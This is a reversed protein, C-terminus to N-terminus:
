ADGGGEGLLISLADADDLEDDDQVIEWTQVWASNTEKWFFAAEYGSPAEPAETFQMPKYGDKPEEVVDLLGDIWKAYYM